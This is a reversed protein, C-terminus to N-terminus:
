KAALCRASGDTASMYLRGGAAILGDFVPLTDLKHEALKEGDAAKVAWLKAGLRGDFSAHPDKEPMVDPPGALFLKEGALVVGYARVPM